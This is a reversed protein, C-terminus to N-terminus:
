VRTSRMLIKRRVTEKSGRSNSSSSSSSSSNNSSSGAPGGLFYSTGKEDHYFENRSSISSSSSSNKIGSNRQLGQLITSTAAIVEVPLPELSWQVYEQSQDMVGGRGGAYGGSVSRSFGHEDQQTDNLSNGDRDGLTSGNHNNNNQNNNRIEESRQRFMRVNAEHVKRFAAAVDAADKTGRRPTANSNTTPTAVPSTMMEGDNTSMTVAADGGGALVGILADFTPDPKSSRRSPIKVRCLPCEHNQKESGSHTRLSQHLCESCFRHFCAVVTVTMKMPELCIGCKLEEDVNYSSLTAPVAENTEQDISYEPLRKRVPRSKSTVSADM